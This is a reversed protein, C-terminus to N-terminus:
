KRPVLCEDIRNYIDGSTCVDNKFVEICQRMSDDKGIYCFMDDQQVIKDQSYEKKINSSVKAQENKRTEKTIKDNVITKGDKKIKLKDKEIIKDKEESVTKTEKLEEGNENIKIVKKSLEKKPNLIKKFYTEIEKRYYYIAGVLAIVLLIILVLFIYNNKNSESLNNNSYEKVNLDVPSLSTPKFFSNVNVDSKMDKFNTNYVEQVTNKITHKM